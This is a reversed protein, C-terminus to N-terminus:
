DMMQKIKGIFIKTDFKEAQKLCAKKYKEPNKNFEKGIEKIIKVLKDEDIDDILKGTVGDIVTEKYGGENPAIVPKGSAMAECVNMGFDEDKATAIFGKCESYIKALKKTDYLSGTFEVNKPCTEKLKSFYNKNEKSHGGVIILRENPLRAFARLQLELRKLPDIRTVSLWYGKHDKFYFKETLVPCCNIESERIYYKKIRLQINKSVAIITKVQRVFYKDLIIFFGIIIQIPINYKSFYRYRLDYLGREPSFCYWINNKHKKAAFISCFGGFIFFDFMSFNDCMFFRYKTVIQKIYKISPVKRISIFEIDDYGLESIKKKDINTTIITAKLARALTLLTIEAGGIEDFYDHMIAIRM